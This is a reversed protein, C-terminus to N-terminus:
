LKNMGLGDCVVILVRLSAGFELGLLMMIRMGKPCLYPCGLAFRGKDM